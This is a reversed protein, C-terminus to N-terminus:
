VALEHKTVSSSEPPIPVSQEEPTGAPPAAHQRGEAPTQAQMSLAIGAVLVVGAKFVGRMGSARNLRMRWLDPHPVCVVALNLYICLPRFCGWYPKTEWWSKDAVM